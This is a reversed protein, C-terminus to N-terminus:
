PPGYPPRPALEIGTVVVELGNPDYYFTVLLPSIVIDRASPYGPTLRRNGLNPPGMGLVLDINNSGQTISNRLLPNKLFLDFLQNDAAQTTRVHFRYPPM